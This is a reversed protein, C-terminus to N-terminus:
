VFKCLPLMLKYDVNTSYAALVGPIKWFILHPESGTLVTFAEVNLTITVGRCLSIKGFIM